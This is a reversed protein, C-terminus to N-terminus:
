ATMERMMARVEAAPHRAVLRASDLLSPLASTRWSNEAERMPFMCFQSFLFHM